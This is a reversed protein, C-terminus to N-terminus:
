WLLGICLLVGLLLQAQATRALQTNFRDGGQLRLFQWSL